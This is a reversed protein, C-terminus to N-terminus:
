YLHSNEFSFAKWFPYSSPNDGKDGKSRSSWPSGPKSSPRLHQSLRTLHSFFSQGRMYPGTQWGESGTSMVLVVVRSQIPLWEIQVRVTWVGPNHHSPLVPLILLPFTKDLKSMATAQSRGTYGNLYPRALFSLSEANPDWSPSIASVPSTPLTYGEVCLEFRNLYNTDV